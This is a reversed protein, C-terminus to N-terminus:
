EAKPAIDADATAQPALAVSLEVYDSKSDDFYVFAFLLVKDDSLKYCAIDGSASTYTKKATYDYVEVKAASTSADLLKGQEAAPITFKFGFPCDTIAAASATDASGGMFVAPEAGEVAYLTTVTNYKSTSSLYTNFSSSSATTTCPGDYSISFPLTPDYSWGEPMKADTITFKLNGNSLSFSGKGTNYYASGYSSTQYSISCDKFSFDTLDDIEALNLQISIYNGSTMDSTTSGSNEGVYVTMYRNWRSFEYSVLAGFCSVSESGITFKGATKPPTIGAMDVSFEAVKGAELNFTKGTLDIKKVYDGNEATVKIELTTGSLDAPACAFWIDDLSTTAITIKSSASRGAKLRMPSESYYIEFGGALSTSATVSVASVAGADAALNKVSFKGYALVHNFHLKVNTVDAGIDGSTAFVFQAAPDCSVATPTQTTPITIDYEKYRQYLRGGVTSIANYCVTSGSEPVTTEYSFQATRGDASPTVDASSASYDDGTWIHVKDTATWLTPYKDGEKEGFATRSDVNDTTFEITHKKAPTTSEHNEKDCSVALFTAAALLAAITFTKKM